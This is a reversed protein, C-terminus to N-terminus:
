GEAHCEVRTDLIPIKTREFTQKVGKGHIAGSDM